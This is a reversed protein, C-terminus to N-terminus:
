GLGLQKKGKESIREPSWPPNWVLEVEAEKIGDAKEAAAKVGSALHRLMPCAPTTFTMKVTARSGEVEVGYILGLDVISIGLEPDMVEKLKELVREKAGM